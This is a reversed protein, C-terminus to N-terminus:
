RKREYRARQVLTWNRGSDPSMFTQTTFSSATIASYERRVMLRRTGLDRSWAFRITDGRTTGEFVLLGGHDSDVYALELSDPAQAAILTTLGMASGRLEGELREVLACDANTKTLTAHSKLVPVLTDNVRSDWAVTWEGALAMLRAISPRPCGAPQAHLHGARAGSWLVVIAVLRRM